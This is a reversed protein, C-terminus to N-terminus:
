RGIKKKCTQFKAQIEFKEGPSGMLDLKKLAPKRAHLPKKDPTTGALNKGSPNGLTINFFGEQAGLSSSKKPEKTVETHSGASRQIKVSKKNILVHAAVRSIESIEKEMVKEMGQLGQLQKRVLKMTRLERNM